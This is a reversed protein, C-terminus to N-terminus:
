PECVANTAPPNRQLEGQQRYTRHHDPLRSRQRATQPRSGNSHSDAAPHLSNAPGLFVCLYMLRSLDPRSPVGGSGVRLTSSIAPSVSALIKNSDTLRAKLAVPLEGLGAKIFKAEAIVATVEELGEKRIKWNKDGIKSVMDSTIKDSYVTLNLSHLYSPATYCGISVLSFKFCQVCM